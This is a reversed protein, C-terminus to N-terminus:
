KPRNQNMRLSKLLKNEARREDASKFFAMPLNGNPLPPALLRNRCDLLKSDRLYRVILGFSESVPTSIFNTHYKGFQEFFSYPRSKQVTQVIRGNLQVFLRRLGDLSEVRRGKDDLFEVFQANSHFGHGCTLLLNHTNRINWDPPVKYIVEIQEDGYTFSKVVEKGFSKGQETVVFFTGTHFVDYKALIPPPKNYGGSQHDLLMSNFYSSPVIQKRSNNGAILGPIPKFFYVHTISAGTALINM